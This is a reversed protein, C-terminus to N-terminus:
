NRLAASPSPIIERDLKEEFNHKRAPKVEQTEPNKKFESVVM